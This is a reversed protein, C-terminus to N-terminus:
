SVEKDLGLNGWLHYRDTHTRPSSPLNFIFPYPLLPHTTRPPPLLTLLFLVLCYLPEQWLPYLLYMQINMKGFTNNPPVLSLSPSLLCISPFFCRSSFFSSALFLDTLSSSSCTVEIKREGRERGRESQLLGVSVWGNCWGNWGRASAGARRTQRWRWGVVWCEIRRQIAIFPAM